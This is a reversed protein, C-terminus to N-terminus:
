LTFPQEQKINISQHEEFFGYKKFYVYFQTASGALPVCHSLLSRRRSRFEFFLIFIKFFRALVQAFSVFVKTVAEPV